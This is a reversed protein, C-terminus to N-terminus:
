ENEGSHPCISWMCVCCRYVYRYLIYQTRDHFVIHLNHMRWVFMTPKNVILSKGMKQKPTYSFFLILLSSRLNIRYRDPIKVLVHERVTLEQWCDPGVAARDQREVTESAFNFRFCIQARQVSPGFYMRGISKNTVNTHDSPLYRECYCVCVCM